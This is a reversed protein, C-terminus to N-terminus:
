AQVQKHLEDRLKDLAAQDEPTPDRGTAMMNTISSIVGLMQPALQLVQLIYALAVPTM